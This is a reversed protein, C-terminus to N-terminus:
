LGAALGKGHGWRLGNCKRPSGIIENCQQLRGAGFLKVYESKLRVTRQLNSSHFFSVSCRRKLHVLLHQFKEEDMCRSYRWGSPDSLITNSM